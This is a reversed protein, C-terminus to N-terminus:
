AVTGMRAPAARTGSGRQPVKPLAFGQQHCAKTIVTFKWLVGGAVAGLGALIGAATAPVPQEPWLALFLAFGLLPLAHGLLRLPLTIAALTNRALPGIGSAPAAACYRRWLLANIVALVGGLGAALPAAGALGPFLGAAIALLGAGEFLGTALLMWPMLPGRWAPIGRAAPLIRAQCYLFGAAAAALVLHLLESPWLVDALLTPYFIAVAYTERTM